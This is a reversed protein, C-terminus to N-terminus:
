HGMWLRLNNLMNCCETLQEITVFEDPKHGQEMSGPGCILSAVGAEDFLGGETGFAVTGLEHNGSWDILWQAFESQPDTLLPPYEALTQFAIGTQAHVARMKPQLTQEAYAKLTDFTENAQTEPLYRM